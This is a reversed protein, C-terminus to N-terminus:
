LFDVKNESVPTGLGLRGTVSLSVVRLVIHYLRMSLCFGQFKSSKEYVLHIMLVAYRRVICVTSSLYTVSSVADM